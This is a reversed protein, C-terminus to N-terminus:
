LADGEVSRGRGACVRCKKGPPCPTLVLGSGQKMTGLTGPKGDGREEYDARSPRYTSMLKSM